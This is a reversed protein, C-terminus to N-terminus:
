LQRSSIPNTKKSTKEWRGRAIADRSQVSKVIMNQQEWLFVQELIIKVLLTGARNCRTVPGRFIFM